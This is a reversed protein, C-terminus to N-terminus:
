LYKMSIKLQITKLPGFHIIILWFMKQKNNNLQGIIISLPLNSEKEFKAKTLKKKIRSLNQTKYKICM